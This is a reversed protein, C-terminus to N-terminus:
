ETKVIRVIDIDEKRRVTLFYIGPHLKSLDIKHLEKLEISEELITNGIMDHVKYSTVPRGPSAIEVSSNTPNPSIQLGDTAHASFVETSIDGEFVLFDTFIGDEATTLICTYTEGEKKRRDFQKEPKVGKELTEKDYLKEILNGKSDFIELTVIDKKKLKLKFKTFAKAPNPNIILEANRERPVKTQALSFISYLLMSASFFTTLAITFRM